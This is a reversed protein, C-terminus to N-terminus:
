DKRKIANLAEISNSVSDLGGWLEFYTGANPTRIHGVQINSSNYLYFFVSDVLWPSRKPVIKINKYVRNSLILNNPYNALVRIDVISDSKYIIKMRKGIDYDCCTVDYEGLINSIPSPNVDQKECSLLTFFLVFVSAVIFHIPFKM